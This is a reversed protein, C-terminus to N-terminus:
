ISSEEIEWSSEAFRTLAWHLGRKEAIKQGIHKDLRKNMRRIGLTVQWPTIGQVERAVDKPFIGTAPAHRLLNQIAHDIEDSCAIDRIYDKDFFFEHQLGKAM